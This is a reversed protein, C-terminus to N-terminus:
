RPIRVLVSRQAQPRTSGELRVMRQAGNFLNYPFKAELDYYAPSRLGTQPDVEDARFLGVTVSSFNPGHYYFAQEGESRFVAVAQEAAKRADARDADTPARGDDRGYSGIQLTYVYDSGYNRAVNRLDYQPNTGSAPEPPTLLAQTFPNIDRMEIARVRDLEAQAQPAQPGDFRGLTLLIAEGRQEIRTNTLGAESAVRAQAFQAAEMADPGRFTALVITWKGEERASPGSGGFLGQGEERSVVDGGQSGGSGACGALAALTLAIGCAGLGQLPWRSAQAAIGKCAGLPERVSPFIIQKLRHAFFHMNM